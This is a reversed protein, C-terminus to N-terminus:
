GTQKPAPYARWAGAPAEAHLIVHGDAAYWTVAPADIRQLAVNVVNEHPRALITGPEGARGPQPNRDFAWRVRAVQDPVIGIVRGAIPTPEPLLARDGGVALVGSYGAGRPGMASVSELLVYGVARRLGRVTAWGRAVMLYVGAGPATYITRTLSPVVAWRFQGGPGPQVAPARRDAATQPRRLIALEDVLARAGAPVAPTGGLAAGRGHGILVIALVVVVAVGAALGTALGAVPFRRRRRSGAAADSGVQDADGRASPAVLEADDMQGMNGCRVWRWAAPVATGISKAV